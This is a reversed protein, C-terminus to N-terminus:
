LSLHASVICHASCAFFPSDYRIDIVRSIRRARADFRAALSIVIPSIRHARCPSAKCTIFERRCRSPNDDGVYHALRERM